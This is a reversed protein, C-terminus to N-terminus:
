RRRVTADTPKRLFLWGWGHSEVQIPLKTRLEDM